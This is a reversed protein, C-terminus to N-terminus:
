ENKIKETIEKAIYEPTKNDTTIIYDANKEYIENREEYINIIRKRLDQTKLLPRTTDNKVRNYISEPETKLYIIISKEKLREINERRKIIGGGTSIIQNDGKLIETLVKSEIDRFTNEGFKEFIENISCNEQKVIKEDSDVLKLEPIIKLLETAVTTKGSGPMGIFSINM